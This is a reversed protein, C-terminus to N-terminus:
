QFVWLAFYFGTMVTSVDCRKALKDRGLTSSRVSLYFLQLLFKEESLIWHFKERTEDITELDSLYMVFM